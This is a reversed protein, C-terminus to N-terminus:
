EWERVPEPTNNTRLGSWRNRDERRVLTQKSSPVYVYVCVSLPVCDNNQHIIMCLEVFM